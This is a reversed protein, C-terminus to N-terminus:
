GRVQKRIEDQEAVRDRRREYGAARVAKAILLADSMRVRGSARWIVEALEDVQASM